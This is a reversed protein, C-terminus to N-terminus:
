HIRDLDEYPRVICREFQSPQNNFYLQVDRAYLHYNFFSIQGVIDSIFLSFLLPGLVLGQVVGAAIPRYVFFCESVWVCQMRQSLHSRIFSVASYIMISATSLRLSIWSCCFLCV